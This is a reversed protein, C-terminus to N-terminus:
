GQGYMAGKVHPWALGSRIEEPLWQRYALRNHWKTRDPLNGHSALFQDLSHFAIDYVMSGRDEAITPVGALVADVGTNSNYTIAVSAQFLADSLHGSMVMKKAVGPVAHPSMPHPRYAAPIGKNRLDSLVNGAWGIFDIGRVATDTPVQGMVVALQPEKNPQWKDEYQTFHQNWRTPEEIDPWVARGNLGNWGLSMWQFRDGVYAREMILVNYKPRFPMARRLGWVCVADFHEAGTMVIEPKFLVVADDGHVRMGDRIALATDHQHKARESVIIAMRM